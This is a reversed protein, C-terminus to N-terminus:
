HSLNETLLEVPFLFLCHRLAYSPSLNLHVSSLCLLWPCVSCRVSPYHLCLGDRPSARSASIVRSLCWLFRPVSEPTLAPTCAPAAGARGPVGPLLRAASPSVLLASAGRGARRRGSHVESAARATQPCALPGGHLPRALSIPRGGSAVSSSFLWSSPACWRHARM